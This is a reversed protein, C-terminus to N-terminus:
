PLCGGTEVSRDNGEGQHPVPSTMYLVLYGTSANRRAANKPVKEKVMRQLLKWGLILFRSRCLETKVGGWVDFWYSVRVWGGEVMRKREKMGLMGVMGPFGELDSCVWGM